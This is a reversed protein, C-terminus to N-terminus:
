KRCSICRTPLDSLVVISLIHPAEGFMSVYHSILIILSRPAASSRRSVVWAEWHAQANATLITEM